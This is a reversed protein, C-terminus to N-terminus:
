PNIRRGVLALQPSSEPLERYCARVEASLRRYTRIDDIEEARRFSEDNLKVTTVV